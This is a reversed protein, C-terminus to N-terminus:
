SFRRLKIVGLRLAAGSSTYVPGISTLRFDGGSCSTALFLFPIQTSTSRIAPWGNRMSTAASQRGAASAWLAAPQPIPLLRNLADALHYPDNPRVLDGAGTADLIEPFAGHDPQVVPVGSALAELVFIGKPELYMTPGVLCRPRALFGAEGKAGTSGRVSVARRSWCGCGKSRGAFSSGIRKGSGARPGCSCTKWERCPACCYFADVLLHFGKAPCIRALYGVTPAPLPGTRNGTMIMSRLGWRCSTSGTRPFIWIARWSDPMSARSYSLGEVDAAIRRIECLAADKYPRLLQEIFLDDGQLTVLVPVRLKKKIERVCGGILINSLNVPGSTWTGAALGGPPRSGQAPTRGGGAVHFHYDRGTSGRRDQARHVRGAPDALSPRALSGASRPVRRFFPLRQQLFANIGGFFVQDLSVNEEDTRIPTYTPILLVDVGLRMLASALTNDHM